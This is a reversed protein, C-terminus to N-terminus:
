LQSLSLTTDSKQLATLHSPVLFRVFLCPLRMRYACTLRCYGRCNDVPLCAPLCAPLYLLLNRVQNTTIRYVRSQIGGGCEESCQSWDGWTGTHIFCEREEVTDNPYTCSDTRGSGAAATMVRYTRVQTGRGCKTSCASWEEFAGECDVPCIVDANCGHDDSEETGAPAECTASSGGNQAQQTVFYTRTRHGGDGCRVSCEGWDGWYGACNTPCSSRDCPTRQIAGDNAVCTTARGGVSLAGAAGSDCM